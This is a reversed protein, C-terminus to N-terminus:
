LSGSFTDCSAARGSTYGTTFWKQRQASSGHTWTEQNVRGQFEKQIRDDGVASAADLGDAIDAQTLPKIFGTQRANHAWVGAYCDAQLELRVSGSSAGKVSGGADQGLLDQIHHGYEHAIVYAQAFTGGQAGFKTRLDGFFGLDLYVLGDAPCYFPGVDSTAAGCGTDTSGTFLVTKAEQYNRVSSGWYSQVSNAIGVIRCDDDRNADAGTQCRQALDSTSSAGTDPVSGGSGTLDSPNVGLILALIVGVIGLGGGGFAMGRGGGMGRRDSVQSADLRAGDEFEM